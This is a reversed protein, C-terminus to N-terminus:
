KCLGSLHLRLLYPIRQVGSLGAHGGFGICANLRMRLRLREFVGADHELVFSPRWVVLGHSLASQALAVRGGEASSRWYHDEVASSVVAAKACLTM